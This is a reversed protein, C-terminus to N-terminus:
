STGDQKGEKRRYKKIEWIIGSIYFILIFLSLILCSYFIIDAQKSEFWGSKTLEECHSYMYYIAYLGGGAILFCIVNKITEPIDIYEASDFYSIGEKMKGTDADHYKYRYFHKKQM